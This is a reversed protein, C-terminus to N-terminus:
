IKDILCKQSAASRGASLLTLVGSTLVRQLSVENMKYEGALVWFTVLLIEVFHM